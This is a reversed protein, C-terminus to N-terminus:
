EQFESPVFTLGHAAAETGPLLLEGTSAKEDFVLADGKIRFVLTEETFAHTCVLTNEKVQYSGYLAFSTTLSAAHVFTGEEEDLYLIPCIYENEDPGSAVYTGQPAAPRACACLGFKEKYEEITM